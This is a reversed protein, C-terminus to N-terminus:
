QYRRGRDVMTDELEKRLKHSQENPTESPGCGLM